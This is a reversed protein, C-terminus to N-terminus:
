PTAKIAQNAEVKRAVKSACVKHPTPAKKLGESGPPKSSNTSNLKLQRELEEIRTLAQALKPVLQAVQAELEKIRRQAQELERM